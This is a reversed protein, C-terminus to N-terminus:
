VLGKFFDDVIKTYESFDSMNKEPEKEVTYILYPERAETVKHGDYYGIIKNNRVMAKDIIFVFDEKMHKLYTDKDVKYTDIGNYTGLRKMENKM